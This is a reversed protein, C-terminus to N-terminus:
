EDEAQAYEDRVQRTLQRPMTQPTRSVDYKAPTGVKMATSDQLAAIEANRLRLESEYHERTNAIERQMREIQTDKVILQRTLEYILDESRANSQSAATTAEVIGQSTTFDQVCM